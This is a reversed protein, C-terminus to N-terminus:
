DNLSSLAEPGFWDAMKSKAQEKMAPTIHAAIAILAAGIVAFDDGFGVAPLADPVLDVPLILYGLAGYVVSKAWKPTADAKASYFLTLAGYIVKAGAQLAFKKLKEWFGDESYHQEYRTLDLKNQDDTMNTKKGFISLILSVPFRSM